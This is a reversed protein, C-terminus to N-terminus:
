PTGPGRPAGDPPGSPGSPGPLLSRFNWRFNAGYGLASGVVIGLLQGELSSAGLAVAAGLVLLNLALVGVQIGGYVAFHYAMSRGGRGAFAWARNWLFNWGLAVAFAGASALYLAAPASGLRLGLLTFVCLNVFVGSVGVVLFPPIRLADAFSLHLPRLLRGVWGEEARRRLAAVLPGYFVALGWVVWLAYDLQVGPLTRAGCAPVLNSTLAPCLVAPGSWLYFPVLFAVTVGIAIGAARWQRCALHYAVVVVAAFQKCGLAVWKAWRSRRAGGGVFAVTLLLLVVLDSYGNAAVIVAYPQGLMVAIDFRRRAVLVLAVWCALAFWKYDLGPVQLLLLLPLFPYVGQFSYTQGYQLYQFALPSVYPDQHRLLLDLFRPLAVAQNTLGNAAGTLISVAGFAVGAGVLFFVFETRREVRLERVALPFMLAFAGLAIEGIGAFESPYLWLATLM